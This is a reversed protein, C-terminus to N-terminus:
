RANVDRTATRLRHLSTAGTVFLETGDDGGFCLNSTVEGLPIRLLSRGDADFVQVGDGCSSWIRGDVDVRFGDSGGEDPKAVRRGHGGDVLDTGDATLEYAFIAGGPEGTDSVLLTRGDAAIALGNPQDRDTVVATVSGDHPDVRFVHRAGYEEDGPHGEVGSAQIGYAPDSFWVAGQRDVIVDNPSNFRVGGPAVDAISSVVGDVDREVRRRGHSCQVVEGDLGLTRGNTYEADEGSRYVETVGTAADWDLIRNNPIDSFRVRRQRPLWLPGEGWVTGTFLVEPESTVLPDIM